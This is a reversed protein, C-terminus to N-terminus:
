ANEHEGGQEQVQREAEKMSKIDLWKSKEEEILMSLAKDLKSYLEKSTARYDNKVMMGVSVERKVGGISISEQRTIWLSDVWITGRQEESM